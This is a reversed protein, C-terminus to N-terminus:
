ISLNFLQSHTHSVWLTTYSRLRRCSPVPSSVPSSPSYSAQLLIRIRLGIQHLTNSQCTIADVYAPSTNTGTNAHCLCPAPAPPTRVRSRPPHFLSTTATAYKLTSQFGGNFFERKVEKGIRENMMQAMGKGKTEREHLTHPYTLVSIRRGCSVEDALQVVLVNRNDSSRGTRSRSAGM